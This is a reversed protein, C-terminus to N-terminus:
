PPIKWPPSVPVPKPNPHPIADKEDFAKTSDLDVMAPVAARIDEIVFKPFTRGQWHELTVRFAIDVAEKMYEAFEGLRFGIAPFGQISAQLHAGDAGVRRPREVATGQLLFTPEPNGQGFPELSALELCDEPKLGHVHLPADIAITPVLLDEAVTSRVHDCLREGIEQMRDCMFTCGAAQAHGGFSLFLESCSRLGSLVNYHPTSRLSGRCENGVISGVLSPKGFRETLKGALLGMIGAPYEESCELLFFRGSNKQARELAREFLSSTLEQRETNLKQLERLASESGLLAALAISPDAMRGAANLRPAIRFAIDRSTLPTGKFVSERLIRLPGHDITQLVDIGRKVLARNWGTLPVLDAITAITALAIDEESGAWADHGSGARETAERFTLAVGAGCPHPAPYLPALAPHLIAYAEPLISPLSHHDLVIVDMGVNGAAKIPECATIGTDVTLLLTVGEKRLSEIHPLSLGYGERERHPLRVVPTCGRARCLRYLIA